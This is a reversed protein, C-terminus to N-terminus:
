WPSSLLEKISTGSCDCAFSAVGDTCAGNNECPNSACEDIDTACTAGSYGADCACTFGGAGDGSGVGLLTIQPALLGVVTLM